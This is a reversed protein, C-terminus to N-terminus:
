KRLSLQYALLLSVYNLNLGKASSGQYFLSLNVNSSLLYSLAAVYAFYTSSSGAHFNQTIGLQPSFLLARAILTQVGLLVPVMNMSAVKYGSFTKGSFSTLGSTLTADLGQTLPVAAKVKGGVGVNWSDALSGTPIGVEAGVSISPASTKQSLAHNALVSILLAFLLNFTKKM